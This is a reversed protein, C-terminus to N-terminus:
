VSSTQTFKPSQPVWRNDIKKVTYDDPKWGMDKLLWDKVLDTQGLSIQVTKSRQFESGAPMRDTDEPKIPEGFYESLLRVTIANYTGDKKFKPTKPAKDVYVTTTGLKPEIVMEIESMRKKFKAKTEKAKREDFRWGRNKVFANFKATDHEIRLGERILPNVKYLAQFEELLKQYVQVNVRVDQMCYHLMEKSYKEWDNFEIKANGLHNGWGALGHKHERKFRLTQSMVWTDYVKAKSLDIGLLREVVPIDYGILNHGIHVNAKALLACADGMGLLEDDHDSFRYEIGSDLDSACLCWIRTAEIGDTEIDWVLKM